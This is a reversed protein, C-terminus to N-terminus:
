WMDLIPFKAISIPKKPLEYRKTPKKKILKLLGKKELVELNRWIFNRASRDSAPIDNYVRIIKTTIIKYNGVLILQNITDLVM